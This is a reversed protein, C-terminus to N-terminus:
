DLCRSPLPTRPRGDDENRIDNLLGGTRKVVDGRAIADARGDIEQILPLPVTTINDVFNQIVSQDLVVGLAEKSKGKFIYPIGPQRLDIPRPPPPPKAYFEVIGNLANLEFFFGAQGEGYDNNLGRPTVTEACQFMFSKYAARSPRDVMYEIIDRKLYLHGIDQGRWSFLNEPGPVAAWTKRCMSTESDLHRRLQIEPFEERFRRLFFDVFGPMEPYKTEGRPELRWNIDKANQQFAKVLAEGNEILCQRVDQRESFQLASAIIAQTTRYLESSPQLEKLSKDPTDDSLVRLNLAQAAM